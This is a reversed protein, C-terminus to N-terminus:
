KIKILEQLKTIRTRLLNNVEQSALLENVIWVLDMIMPNKIAERNQKQLAILGRRIRNLRQVKLNAVPDELM